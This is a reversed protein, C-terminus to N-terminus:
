SHRSRAARRRARRVERQAMLQAELRLAKSGLTQMQQLQLIREAQRSAHRAAARCGACLTSEHMQWAPQGDGADDPGISLVKHPGADLTQSSSMAAATRERRRRTNLDATSTSRRPPTRLLQSRSARSGGSGTPRAVPSSSRVKKPVALDVPDTASAWIRNFLEDNTKVDYEVFQSLLTAFENKSLARPNSSGHKAFLTSVMAEAGDFRRDGLLELFQNVDVTEM